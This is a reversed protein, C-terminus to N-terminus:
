GPRLPLRTLQQDRTRIGGSAELGEQSSANVSSIPNNPPDNAELKRIAGKLTNESVKSLNLGLEEAKRKVDEDITLNVRIKGLWWM